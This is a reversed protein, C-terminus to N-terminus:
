KGTVTPKRRYCARRCTTPPALPGTPNRGVPGNEKGSTPIRRGHRLAPLVCSAAGSSAARARRHRLGAGQGHHCREGRRRTRSIPMRRARPARPSSTTPSITRCPPAGTSAAENTGARRAAAMWGPLARRSSHHPRRTDRTPLENARLAVRSRPRRVSPSPRSRGPRGRRSHCFCSVGSHRAGGTDSRGGCTASLHRSGVGWRRAQWVRRWM